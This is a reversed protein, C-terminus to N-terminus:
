KIEKENFYGDGLKIAYEQIYSKSYKYKYKIPLMKRRKKVGSLFKMM